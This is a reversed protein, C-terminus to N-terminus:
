GDSGRGAPVVLVPCTAIHLLRQTVSGVILGGLATHGQTGVVILDAGADKAIDAIVHAPQRKETSIQESVDFGEARLEAVQKEVKEKLVVDDDYLPLGAALASTYIQIVHVVVLAAGERRALDKAYPLAVDAQDSGDTAWIITSFM